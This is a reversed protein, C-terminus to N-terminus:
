FAPCLSLGRVCTVSSVPTHNLGPNGMYVAGNCFSLCPLLDYQM